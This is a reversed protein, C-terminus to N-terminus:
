ICSMASIALTVYKNPPEALQYIILDYVTQLFLFVNNEAEPM